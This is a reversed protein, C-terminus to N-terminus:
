VSNIINACTVAHGCPIVKDVNLHYVFRKLEFSSSHQCFFVKHVDSKEMLGYTKGCAESGCSIMIWTQGKQEDVNKSPRSLVINSSQDVMDGLTYGMLKSISSNEPYELRYRLKLRKALELLLLEQGISRVHIYLPNVNDNLQYVMTALTKLSDGTSIFGQSLKAFTDDIYVRNFDMEELVDMDVDDRSEFRFDGTYLIQEDKYRIVFMSAGICHRTPLLMMKLEKYQVWTRWPIGYVGTIDPYMIHLLDATVKSAWIRGHKEERWGNGLSKMHDSHAHTLLYLGNADKAAGKFNDIAIGNLSLVPDLVECM